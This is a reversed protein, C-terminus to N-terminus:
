SDNAADYNEKITAGRHMYEKLEEYKNEEIMNTINGLEDTLKKLEMVLKDRNGFFLETWMVENILAVRSVDRFSGGAYPTVLRENSVHMYAISLAHPIQSTYAIYEDHLEPTSEVINKAGLKLALEKVMGLSKDSNSELPTVIYHCDKFLESFSYDYGQRESGAM